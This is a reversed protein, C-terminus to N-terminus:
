KPPLDASLININPALERLLPRAKLEQINNEEFYRFRLLPNDPYYKERPVTSHGLTSVLGMASIILTVLKNACPWFVLIKLLCNPKQKDLLESISQIQLVHQTLNEKWKIPFLVKAMTCVM